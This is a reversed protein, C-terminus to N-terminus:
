AMSLNGSALLCAVQLACDPLEAGGRHFYGGTISVRRWGLGPLPHVTCLFYEGPRCPDLLGEPGRNLGDCRRAAMRLSHRRDQGPCNDIERRQHHFGPSRHEVAGGADAASLNIIVGIQNQMTLGAVGRGPRRRRRCRCLQWSVASMREHQLCQGRRHHLCVGVNGVSLGSIKFNYPKARQVEPRRQGSSAGVGAAVSTMDISVSGVLLVTGPRCGPHGGAPSLGGPGSQSSDPQHAYNTM